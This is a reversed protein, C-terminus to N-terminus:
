EKKSLSGDNFRIRFQTGGDKVLEIEGHLQQTFLKVLNLGFSQPKEFDVSDPLGVGDDKIILELERNGVSRLSFDISGREHNPLAHRLANSVIENILFGLPVARDLGLQVSEVHTNMVVISGIGKQTLLLHDLLSRVYEELSVHALNKSQCLREHVLAMSRIRSQADDFLQRHFEDKADRSQLSLLSNVLALNNKVRHHIERLLVEKESLSAKIFEEAKKRDNIDKVLALLYMGEDYELHSSRVEVWFHTGDKKVDISETSFNQKARLSQLAKDFLSRKDPHVIDHGHLQIFEEKTYGYMRCAAPNVDVVRGSDDLIILADATAEFIDRYRQESRRRAEELTRRETIDRVASVIGIPAGDKDKLFSVTHHTPFIEGNKRKLEFEFQASEGGSFAESIRLGFKVFHEQSVHLIEATRGIVEKKGYVFIRETAPNVDRIVREPTLVVVSEELADFVSSLWLESERLTAETRSRETIDLAM